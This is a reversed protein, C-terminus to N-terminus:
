CAKPRSSAGAQITARRLSTGAPPSMSRHTSARARAARRAARRTLDFDLNPHQKGVKTPHYSWGHHCKAFITVSDVNAEAFTRGFSEPDFRSGIGPIRESTHFDLHIQRYRM